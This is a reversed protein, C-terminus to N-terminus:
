SVRQLDVLRVIREGSALELTMEVAAPMTDASGPLGWTTRWEGRPDLFRFALSKVGALIEVALPESRPAADVAPWALRQIRGDVIRYAIRQPAALANENLAAGSRTLALGPNVITGADVASSVPAGPSGSASMARRNLAADLDREFRGVFLAVDRWKRSGKALAERSELLANLGRYAFASILAFLALAVLLEILTFGRNRSM